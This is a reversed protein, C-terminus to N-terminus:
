SFTKSLRDNRIVRQQLPWFKHGESSCNASKSCAQSAVSPTSGSSVCEGAHGRTGKEWMVHFLVKTLHWVQKDFDSPLQDTTCISPWSRAAPRLRVFPFHSTHRPTDRQHKISYAWSFWMESEATDFLPWKGILSQNTLSTCANEVSPRCALM